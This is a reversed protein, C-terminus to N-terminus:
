GLVLQGASFRRMTLRGIPFSMPMGTCWSSGCSVRSRHKHCVGSLSLGLRRCESILSRGGAKCKCGLPM